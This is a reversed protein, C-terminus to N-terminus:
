VIQCCFVWFLLMESRSSSISIYVYQKVAGQIMSSHVYYGWKLWNVGKLLLLDLNIGIYHRM